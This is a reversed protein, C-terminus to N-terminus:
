TMRNTARPCASPWSRSRSFAGSAHSEHSLPPVRSGCAALVVRGACLWWGPNVPGRTLIEGSVPAPVVAFQTITVTQAAVTLTGVRNALTANVAVLYKVQGTGTGTDGATITIWTAQSTATWACGDATTLNVTGGGGAASFTAATPQIQYSCPDPPKGSQNVTVSQGAVVITNTRPNTSNNRAVDYKVQGNGTGTAGSTITIWSAQTAATWQCGAQTTVNITGNGDSDNFNATTPSVQFAAAPARRV